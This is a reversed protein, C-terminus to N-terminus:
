SGAELMAAIRERGLRRAHQLANLGEHDVLARNAGAALLRQVADAHGAIVALMLPTRGAADPANLQTTGSTLQRELEPMRGARAAEHLASAPGQMGGALANQRPAAAAPAPAAKLEMRGGPRAQMAADQAPAAQSRSDTPPTAPFPEATPREEASLEAPEVTPRTRARAPPAEMAAPPKTALVSSGADAAKDKDLASEPAPVPSAVPATAVGPVPAGRVLEKEQPTGRDFQLVLLGALGALLVSAFMSVKWRSQNAAPAKASVRETARLNAAALMRAHAHVAQRVRDSPRREDQASAERYRLTVDDSDHPATM